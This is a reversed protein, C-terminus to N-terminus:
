PRAPRRTRGQPRSTIRTPGGPADELLRRALRALEATHLLSHELKLDVAYHGNSPQCRCVEGLMLTDECEAKVASGVEIPSDVRLRLASGTLSVVEGPLGAGAKGITTVTIRQGGSCRPQQQLSV